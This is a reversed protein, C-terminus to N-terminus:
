DINRQYKKLYNKPDKLFDNKIKNKFLNLAKRRMAIAIKTRGLRKALESDPYQRYYKKLIDDDYKSWGGKRAPLNIKKLDKRYEPKVTENYDKIMKNFSVCHSYSTPNNYTWDLYNDSTLIKKNEEIIGEYDQQKEKLIEKWNKQIIEVIYKSKPKLQM